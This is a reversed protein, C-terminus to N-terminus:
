FFYITAYSVQESIRTDHKILWLKLVELDRDLKDADGRMDMESLSKMKESLDHQIRGIHRLFQIQNEILVLEEQTIYKRSSLRGELLDSNSKDYKRLRTKLGLLLDSRKREIQTVFILCQDHKQLLMIDVDLIDHGEKKIHWIWGRIM